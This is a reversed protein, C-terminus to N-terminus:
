FAPGKSWTPTEVGAWAQVDDRMYFAYCVRNGSCVPVGHRLLKGYLAVITGPAYELNVGLGPLSVTGGKYNGISALVDYWSPRGSTDRHLISQRNSMVSMAGFVSPWADVASHLRANSLCRGLTRRGSSYQQPHILSLLGSVLGFPEYSAAVWQ